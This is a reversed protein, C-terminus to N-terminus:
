RINNYSDITEKIFKDQSFERAKLINKKCMLNYIKKDKHISKIRRLTSEINKIDIVSNKNPVIEPLSGRDSVLVPIRCAMAELVPLGFGEYYSPFFFLDLSNYFANMKEKTIFGLFLVNNLKHIKAIEELREKERGAGGIKFEINPLNKALELIFEVNKRKGLGGLYGIIFKKNKKRKTPYFVSSNVAEYIVRTKKKAWPFYKFIDRKTCESVAIIKKSKITSLFVSFYFFLRFLPNRESNFIPMVDHITTIVKKKFIAQWILEPQQVHNIDGRLNKSVNLENATLGEFLEGSYRYIGQGSNTDFSKGILNIKM